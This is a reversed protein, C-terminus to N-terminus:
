KVHGLLLLGPSGGPRLACHGLLVEHLVCRGITTSILPTSFDGVVHADGPNPTLSTAAQAVRSSLRRAGVVTLKSLHVGLTRQMQGYEAIILPPPDPM